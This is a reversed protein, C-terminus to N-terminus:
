ILYLTLFNRKTKQTNNTIKQSYSNKFFALFKNLKKKNPYTKVLIYDNQWFFSFFAIKQDIWGPNNKIMKFKFIIYFFGPDRSLKQPITIPITEHTKKHKKKPGDLKKKDSVLM